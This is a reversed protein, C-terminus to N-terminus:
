TCHSTVVKIQYPEWTQSVLGYRVNSTNTYYPHLLEKRVAQVVQRGQWDFMGNINWQQGHVDTITGLGSVPKTVEITGRIPCPQTYSLHFM